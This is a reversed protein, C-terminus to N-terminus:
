ESMSQTAAGNGNEWYIIRECNPCFKLADRRQLENYMQPPINMNCGSCTADVVQSLVIGGKRIRLREYINLIGSDVKKAIDAREKEEELIRKRADDMGNKIVEVEKEVQKRMIAIEKAELEFSQRLKEKEEMCGLIKDEKDEVARGIEEIEKLVAQYEKNNTISLLRTKSKKVREIRDEVDAEYQRQLKEIEEIRSKEADLKQEFWEMERENVQIRKPGELIEQRLEELGRDKEQIRALMEIQKKVV